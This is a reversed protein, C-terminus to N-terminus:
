GDIEVFAEASLWKMIPVDIPNCASRQLSEGRDLLITLAAPIGADVTNLSRLVARSFSIVDSFGGHCLHRCQCCCEGCCDREASCSSRCLNRSNNCWGSAGASVVVSSSGVAALKAEIRSLNSGISALDSAVSSVDPMVYSRTVIAAIDSAVPAIQAIVV